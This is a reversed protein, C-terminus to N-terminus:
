SENNKLQYNIMMANAAIAELHGMSRDDDAYNGKMVELVHRFLAQKLEEVDIPKKWNYPKYKGKNSSMREAVQTLFDFDLEYNLKTSQEKYGESKELLISGAVSHSYGQFVVDFFEQEDVYTYGNNEYDFPSYQAHFNGTDGTSENSVNDFYNAQEAIGSKQGKFERHLQKLRETAHTYIKM